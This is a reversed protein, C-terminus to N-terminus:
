YFIVMTNLVYLRHVIACKLVMKWSNHSLSVVGTRRSDFHSWCYLLFSLAIAATFGVATLMCFSCYLDLHNALITAIPLPNNQFQHSSARHSIMQGINRKLQQIKTNSTCPVTVNEQLAEHQYVFELAGPDSLCEVIKTVVTCRRMDCDLADSYPVHFIIFLDNTTWQTVLGIQAVTSLAITDHIQDHM